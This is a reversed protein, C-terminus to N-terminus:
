YVLWSMTMFVDCYSFVRFDNLVLISFLSSSLFAVFDILIWPSSTHNLPLCFTLFQVFIMFARRIEDLGSVLKAVQKFQARHSLNKHASYGAPNTRRCFHDVVLLFRDNTKLSIVSIFCSQKM